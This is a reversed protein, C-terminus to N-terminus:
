AEHCEYYESNERATNHNEVILVKADRQAVIRHWVGQKINYIKNKEMPYAKMEQGIFLTASGDLLVFVEDTLLHRELVAPSGEDFREAYNLVAVRWAEFNMVPSYGEGNYELIEIELGM